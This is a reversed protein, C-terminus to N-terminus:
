PWISSSPIKVPVRMKGSTNKYLQSITLNTQTPSKLYETSTDNM